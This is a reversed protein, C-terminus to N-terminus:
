QQGLFISPCLQMHVKQVSDSNDVSLLLMEIIGFTMACQAGSGELVSRLGAQHKM